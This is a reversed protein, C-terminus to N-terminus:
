VACSACARCQSAAQSVSKIVACHWHSHNCHTWSCITITGCPRAPLVSGSTVLEYRLQMSSTENILKSAMSDGDTVERIRRIIDSGQM